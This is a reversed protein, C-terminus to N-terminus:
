EGQQQVYADFDAQAAEENAVHQEYAAQNESGAYGQLDHTTITGDGDLDLYPNQQLALDTNGSVM